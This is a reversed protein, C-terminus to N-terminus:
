NLKMECIKLHKTLIIKIHRNKKNNNGRFIKLKM